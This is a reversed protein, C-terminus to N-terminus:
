SEPPKMSQVHLLSLEFIYADRNCGAFNNFCLQAAPISAQFKIRLADGASKWTTQIATEMSIFQATTLGAESALQRVQYICAFSLRHLFVIDYLLICLVDNNRLM